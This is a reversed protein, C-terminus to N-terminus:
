NEVIRIIECTFVDNWRWRTMHRTEKSVVRFTIYKRGSRRLAPFKDENTWEIRQAHHIPMKLQASLKLEAGRIHDVTNSYVWGSNLEGQYGAVIEDVTLFREIIFVYPHNHKTRHTEERLMGEISVRVRTVYTEYGKQKIMDWIVPGTGLKTEDYGFGIREQMQARTMTPPDCDPDHLFSGEERGLEMDAHLQVRKGLLRERDAMLECFTISPVRQQASVLVPATLTILLTLFVTRM